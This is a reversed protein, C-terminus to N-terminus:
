RVLWTAFRTWGSTAGLLLSLPQSVIILLGGWVFAPHIRRHNVADVSACVVILLDLIGVLSFLGGGQIFHLPVRVIGPSLISLSALLMFRKHFDSRRRQLIAASVLIAFVLVIGLQFAMGALQPHALSIHRRQAEVIVTPAVMVVLVALAVGAVGPAPALRRSARHDSLDAGLVVRVVLDDARRASAAAM